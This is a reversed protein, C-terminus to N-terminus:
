NFWMKLLLLRNFAMEPKYFSLKPRPQLHTVSDYTINKTLFANGCACVSLTSYVDLFPEWHTSGREPQEGLDESCMSLQLLKAQSNDLGMHKSPSALVSLLAHLPCFLSIPSILAHMSLWKLRTQSKAVGHVTGVLSRQGHPNELCSYQLPNGCGGGPSRGLGPISGVDGTGTDAPLNKVM